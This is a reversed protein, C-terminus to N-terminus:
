RAEGSPEQLVCVSRTALHRTYLLARFGICHERGRKRVTTGESILRDHNDDSGLFPVLLFNLDWGPM